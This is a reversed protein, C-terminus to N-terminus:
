RLVKRPNFPHNLRFARQARAATALHRLDALIDGLPEVDNRGLQPHQHGAAGSVGTAATGTSDHLGMCRLVDHRATQRGLGQDGLDDDGLETVVQWEVALGLDVGALPDGKVPGSKPLQTPRAQKWKFGITSCM